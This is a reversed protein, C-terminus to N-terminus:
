FPIDDLFDSSASERERPPMIDDPSTGDAFRDVTVLQSQKATGVPGVAWKVKFYGAKDKGIHVMGSKGVWHSADFDGRQIGFSDFFTTMNRDWQAIRDPDSDPREFFTWSKPNSEPYGKITVPVERVNAYLQEVYKDQPQGLTIEYDGESTIFASEREQYGEGYAL